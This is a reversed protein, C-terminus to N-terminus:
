QCLDYCQFFCKRLDGRHLQYIDELKQDSFIQLLRPCDAEQYGELLRRCLQKFVDVSPQCQYIVPLWGRSHVTTLLRAHRAKFYLRLWKWLGISEGCDLLLVNRKSLPRPDKLLADVGVPQFDTHLDGPRYWIEPREIRAGSELEGIAPKGGEILWANSAPDLQNMSNQNGASSDITDTKTERRAHEAASVFAVEFGRESLHEGIEKLLTSKGSGHPGLLCTGFRNETQLVFRDALAPTRLGSSFWFDLRHIRGISFPNQSAKM